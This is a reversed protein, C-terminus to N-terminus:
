YSKKMVNIGAEIVQSWTEILDPDCKPDHDKVCALLSNVWLQYMAPEINLNNRDHKLALREVASKAVSSGGGFMILTALGNRLLDKQNKMNTKSFLPEIRPDSALFREYFTDLFSKGSVRNLMCRGLSQQVAQVKAADM